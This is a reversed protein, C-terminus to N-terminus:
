IKHEEVMVTLTVIEEIEQKTWQSGLKQSVYAVREKRKTLDKFEMTNLLEKARDLKISNLVDMEGLQEKDVWGQKKKLYLQELEKNKPSLDAFHPVYIMGLPAGITASEQLNYLMFRTFRPNDRHRGYARLGYQVNEFSWRDPRLWITSVNNVAIINQVDKIRMRRAVSGTGYVSLKSEDIIYCVNKQSNELENLYDFENGCINHIWFKSQNHHSILWGITIASVSKGSRTQGIISIHIPEKLDCKDKIYRFFLKSYDTIWAKAFKSNEAIYLRAINLQLADM